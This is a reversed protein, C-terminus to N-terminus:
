FDVIFFLKCVIFLLIYNVDVDIIKM